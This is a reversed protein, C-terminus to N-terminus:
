EHFLELYVEFLYIRNRRHGTLERLLGMAEFDGILQNATQHTVGLSEGAQKVTLVPNQYMFNILRGANSARRGFGMAKETLERRLALIQQFTEVGKTATELVATLFFRVWHIMDNATRVRSLADYYSDRHKELFASIYLSPRHLLENDILYLPVLLRGIRGNGDSFPHITEFQYHSIAIRVLHPVDIDENHWFQELDSMLPSVEEHSPPIYVADGLSSGGIWNQSRRFDGPSKHEGRVGELLIAHAERLLRNSLPLRTLAELSHDMAEIYNNVEKWDNRREPLVEKEPLLAEEVETRTGEIRSSLSAEKVTHMRIFMDVDPVILTFADLEALKLSASELLTNIRGDEWARPHNVPTPTFSRYQYQRVLSGSNFDEMRM